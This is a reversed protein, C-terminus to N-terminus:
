LSMGEKRMAEELAQKARYAINAMQKKTKHMIRAVEDCGLDEFYFLHLYTAYDENLTGILRRLRRREDNKLVTEELTEIDALEAAEPADHSLMTYRSERRIYDIAKHRAISFLYTKFSSKFAYRKKHVLLEMFTDAALDEATTYNNVLRNIFFILSDHYLRLIEEFGREDGDLFRRYHLAGLDTEM